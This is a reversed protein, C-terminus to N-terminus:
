PSGRHAVVVRFGYDPAAPSPMFWFRASVGVLNRFSLFSGGRLVRGEQEGLEERGDDRDYPYKKLLSTTWEWVNGIMDMAGYPSAGHPYVGIPTTARVAGEAAINARARDFEDGWPWGRQDESGRAAKEWQAETPLSYDQGTVAGLWCCYAMAEHWSVGMVPYNPRNFYSSDWFEPRDRHKREYFQFSGSRKGESRTRNEGHRWNWGRDTWYERQDYEGAEIFGAYEQNTVPYKGIRFEDLYVRHGPKEGENEAADNGMWFEGAPVHVTEGVRPDGLEGLVDGAGIRVGRDVEIKGMLDLLVPVLGEDKTLWLLLVLTERWWDERGLTFLLGEADPERTLAQAAFYEQLLQHLMRVQEDGVPVLLGTMKLEDFMEQLGYEQRGRCEELVEFASEIEYNLTRGKQMRWGLGELTSHARSRISSSKIRGLMRPSRAFSALLQGRNTPLEGTSGAEKIMFLLLPNRAMSRLREDDSVWAYLSRGKDEGLGAVLYDLVDSRGKGFFAGEEDELEQVVLEHSQSLEGQYDRYDQTRCTLCYTHQPYTDMQKVLAKAGEDRFKGMENLGDILVFCPASALLAETDEPSLNLVGQRNLAARLIPLLDKDGAYQGLPVLIPIIAEDPDELSKKATVWMLRELATTKGAGPDGLIVVRKGAKEVAEILDEKPLEDTGVPFPADYLSVNMPLPRAKEDIYRDDSWRQYTEDAIIAELQAVVQDESIEPREAKKTLIDRLDVIELLIAVQGPSLRQSLVRRYCEVFDPIVRAPDLGKRKILVRTIPDSGLHEGLAQQILQQDIPDRNLIHGGIQRGVGPDRFFSAIGTLKYQPHAEFYFDFAESLTETLRDDFNPELLGARKLLRGARTGDLAQAHHKLIDTAINALVGAGVSLPTFPEPIPM